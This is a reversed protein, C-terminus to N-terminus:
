LTYAMLLLELRALEGMAWNEAPLFQLLCKLYGTAEVIFLPNKVLKKRDYIEMYIEKQTKSKRKMNKNEKEKQQTASNGFVGATVQAGSDALPTKRKNYWM